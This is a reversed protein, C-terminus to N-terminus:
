QHTAPQGRGEGAARGPASATGGAYSLEERWEDAYASNEYGPMSPIGRTFHVAAPVIAPDDIGELWNWPKPLFGLDPYDHCWRFQHLWLGPWRNVRELQGAHLLHGCNFLMLSSWNKRPYATQAQGDMKTGAEAPKQRPDYWHNVCM